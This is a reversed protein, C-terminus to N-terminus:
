EAMKTSITGKTVRIMLWPLCIILFKKILKPLEVILQELEIRYLRKTHDRQWISM